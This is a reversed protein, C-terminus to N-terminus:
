TLTVLLVAPSGVQFAGSAFDAAANSGDRGTGCSVAAVVGFVIVALPPVVMHLHSLGLGRFVDRADIAGVEGFGFATERMQLATAEQDPQSLPSTPPDNFFELIDLRGKVLVSAQRDGPFLGGDVGVSCHGNFTVFGAVNIVEFTNKPNTWVYFFKVNGFFVDPNEVRARFKAFSKNEIIQFQELEVSSNASILFPVNLLVRGIPSGDVPLQGVAQLGNVLQAAATQLTRQRDRSARVAEAKIRKLRADLRARDQEVVDAFKKVTSRDLTPALLRTAERRSDKNQLRRPLDDQAADAKDLRKGLPGTLMKKIRAIESRTM